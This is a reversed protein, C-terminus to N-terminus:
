EAGTSCEPLFILGEDPLHEHQIIEKEGVFECLPEGSLLELSERALLEQVLEAELTPNSPAVPLSPNNPAVPTSPNDPPVPISPNNPAVPTSPQSPTVPNLPPSPAATTYLFGSGSFPSSQPYTISFAESGGMVSWGNVNGQPSTAYVLWRNGAGVVLPTSGVNNIFNQAAALTINGSAIIPRNLVIDGSLARLLVANAHEIGNAGINDVALTGSNIVTLNGTTNAALSGIQNNPNDLVTNGQGLITLGQASIFGSQSLDHNTEITLNSGTVVSALQTPSDNQLIIDGGTSGTTLAIAGILQNSPNGLNITGGEATFQSTGDVVLSGVQSISATTSVPITSSIDTQLQLFGAFSNSGQLVIADSSNYPHTFVEGSALSTVSLNGTVTLSGLDNIPGVRVIDVDGTSTSTAIFDPLINPSMLSVAVTSGTLNTTGAVRLAGTQSIDGASTLTFNGGIINSAVLSTGTTNNVLVNGIGSQTTTFTALGYNNISGGVQEIKEFAIAALRDSVTVTSGILRIIGAAKLDLNGNSVGTLILSEYLLINQSEYEILSDNGAQVTANEQSINGNATLEIISSDGANILSGSTLSISGSSNYLVQSDDGAQVTASEQIIGVGGLSEIHINSGTTVAILANTIYVDNSGLLSAGAGAGTITLTAGSSNIGANSITVGSNYDGSVSSGTGTITLIGVDSSIGANNITVGTNYDGSFSLGAGSIALTGGSSDIGAGNMAIGTNNSGYDSGGSGSITLTGGDSGIGAGNMAIGTNNSGSDSGGTGSITLTGGDSGIGAGNMAIGTNNSGSGSGGTGSITLTGGDSGIGAGNMAIGTNNSGSGSGGTGSITLTGGGSGIGAGSMTIGINYDGSGSGGTGSITLTGGGSGIGAGSMTIGINYDGSGSGGTGSITLIGGISNIGANSIAVGTNNSGSDSSGTGTIALSGDGSNIGANSIAVGTNNNGSDSSGTGTITLSGSGSNIGTSSIAVGTNNGATGTSNGEIYISGSNTTTISSSDILVVNGTGAAQLRINGGGADLVAGQLVIRSAPNTSPDSGGGLIINGGNSILNAPNVHIEGLSNSDADANLVINLKDSTSTISDNVVINNAAALTLTAEGGATKNIPANVTINGAQL